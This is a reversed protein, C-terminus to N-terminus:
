RGRAKRPPRAQQQRVGALKMAEEEALQAFGYVLLRLRRPNTPRM